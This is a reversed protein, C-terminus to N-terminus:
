QRNPIDSVAPLGPPSGVIVVLHPPEPEVRTVLSQLMSLANEFPEDAHWTSMVAKPAGLPRRGEVQMVVETEEFIDHVRECGRGWCVIVGISGALCHEALGGLAATPMDAADAALLLAGPRLTPPWDALSEIHIIEIAV